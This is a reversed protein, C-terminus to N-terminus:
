GAAQVRVAQVLECFRSFGVNDLPEANLHQVNWLGSNRIGPSMAHRGLWEPSPSGLPNQALLAILGRELHLGEAANAVSIACFTFRERLLQGILGEVEAFDPQTGSSWGDIRPDSPNDRRLIAGGLHRRFVSTRSNEFFHQRIRGPFRGDKSHTGVRVIREVPRGELNVVEGREFFFYLGNGPLDGKAVSFDLRPLRLVLDHVARTLEPVASDM